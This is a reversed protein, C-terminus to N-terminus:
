SGGLSCDSDFFQFFLRPIRPLEQEASSADLWLVNAERRFWTDQRKAYQRTAVIIRDIAEQLTWEGSLHRTLERYGIAQFATPVDTEPVSVAKRGSVSNVSELLGEVEELWGEMVMRRVRSQIRDYLIARELTLGLKFAPVPETEPAKSQWSSLPAGTAEFVELARLIRQRDSPALRCAVAPDIEELIQFMRELGRTDCREQVARRVEAPIRPMPSLGNFLARLYLGSGGVVIANRGRAQISAITSRARRAFDGASFPEWPDLIDILHHPVSQRDELSAKATGIDLGRYVQLADANVIEAELEPALKMALASKGTATAGLVALVPRVIGQEGGDDRVSDTRERARPEEEPKDMMSSM